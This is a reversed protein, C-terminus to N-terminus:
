ELEPFGIAIGLQDFDAVNWGAVGAICVGDAHGGWGDDCVYAVNKGDRYLNCEWGARDHGFGSHVKKVSYTTGM